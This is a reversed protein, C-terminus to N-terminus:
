DTVATCMLVMSLAEPTVTGDEVLPLEPPELHDCHWVNANSASSLITAM